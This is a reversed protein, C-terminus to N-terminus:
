SRKRRAVLGLLGVGFTVMSVPEPVAQTGVISWNYQGIGDFSASYTGGPAVNSSTDALATWTGSFSHSLPGTYVTTGSFTADVTEGNGSFDFAGSNTTADYGYSISGVFGNGLLNSFQYDFHLLESNTNPNDYQGGFTIIWAHASLAITGLALVAATRAFVKTTLQTMINDGLSLLLILAKHVIEKACGQAM